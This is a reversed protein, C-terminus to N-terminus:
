FFVFELTAKSNDEMFLFEFGLRHFFEQLKDFIFVELLLMYFAGDALASPAKKNKKCLSQLIYVFFLSEGNSFAEKIILTHLSNSSIPM